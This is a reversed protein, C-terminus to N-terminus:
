FLIIKDLPQDHNEFPLNEVAQEQFGIGWAQTSKKQSLFRDYYGKGYGLRINTKLDFGLAPILAIDIKSLEIPNCLSPIPELFGLPHKELADRNPVQYLHLAVDRMRPLVLRKETLLAENFPWLDIESGFSAFSLIFLAQHCLTPLTECALISAQKKRVPDIEERISRLHKRLSKKLAAINPNFKQNEM